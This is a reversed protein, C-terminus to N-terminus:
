VQGRFYGSLAGGLSPHSKSVWSTISHMEENLDGAVVLLREATKVHGFLIYSTARQPPASAVLM